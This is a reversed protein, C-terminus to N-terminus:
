PEGVARAMIHAQMDADLEVFRASYGWVRVLLDAYQEPHERAAQLTAPNYIAVNLVPVGLTLATTLLQRLVGRGREGMPVVSRSLSLHFVATGVAQTLPAKSVSRIVATPGRRARGPTPSFHEAIPDKWRRGDPTAGVLKAEDSFTHNFLAPWYPRGVPTPHERVLRCFRTVLDAALVDVSDVDNGFKPAALLRQRLPEHGAFDARLAALLEAMSCFGDTFVVQRIGALADALTTLTGSFLVNCEVTHGGRVPDVGDELCRPLLGAVFPATIAHETEQRICDDLWKLKREVQYAYQRWVAEYVDAFRTMAAMDGSGFGFELSTHIPRAPGAKHWYRGVAEGPLANGQGNFLALELAKMADMTCIRIGSEGDIIIENCGDNAYNRAAALPVGGYRQLAPILLEDSYVTGQGHGLLQLDLLKELFAPPTRAHLRVNVHPETSRAALAVELMLLSLDSTADRGDADQGGLMVNRLTDGSGAANMKEWLERLIIFADARTLRGAALDADYLGHLQQDLRGITGHGRIVWAFWCAQVGHLFTVPAGTALVRCTATILELRERDTRITTTAARQAAADAHATMFATVGRYCRAIADLYAAEETGSVGRRRKEAAAVIGAFGLRMLTGLNLAFHLNDAGTAPWHGLQEAAANRNLHIPGALVGSDPVVPGTCALVRRFDETAATIANVRSSVVSVM